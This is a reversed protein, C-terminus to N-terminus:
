HNNNYNELIRTATEINEAEKKFNYLIKNLILCNISNNINVNCKPCQPKSETKCDLCILDGCPIILYVENSIKQCFTCRVYEESAKQLFNMNEIINKLDIISKNSLVPSYTKLEPKPESIEDKKVLLSMKKAILDKNALQSNLYNENKRVKELKERIHTLEEELASYKKQWNLSEEKAINVVPSQVFTKRKIEKKHSTIDEIKLTKQSSYKELQIEYKLKHIEYKETNAKLEKKLEKHESKLEAHKDKHYEIKKQTKEIKGILKKILIENDQSNQYADEIKKEIKFNEQALLQVEDNLKSNNIEIISNFKSFEKIKEESIKKRELLNQFDETKIKLENEQDILQNKLAKIKTQITQKAEWIQEQTKNIKLLNEELDSTKKEIYSNEQSIKSITANNEELLNKIKSVEYNRSKNEEETEEVLANLVVKYPSLISEPEIKNDSHDLFSKNFKLGPNNKNVKLETELAKIYNDQEEIVKILDNIKKISDLKSFYNKNLKLNKQLTKDAQPSEEPASLPSFNKIDRSRVSDPSLTNIFTSRRNNKADKLRKINPLSVESERAKLKNKLM